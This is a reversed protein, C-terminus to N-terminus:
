NESNAAPLGAVFARIERLVDAENSRFVFHDATPLRVVHAKPMAHEFAAVQPETASEPYTAFIALVPTASIAPFRREGAQIAQIARVLPPAAIATAQRALNLPVTKGGMAFTGSLSQGDTSLKGNYHGSSVPLDFSFDPRSFTVNACPLAFAGQDVSDFACLEGGGASSKVTLQVRLSQIGPGLWIGDVVSPRVSPTLTQLDKVLMSPPDKPLRALSKTLMPLDTSLLQEAVSQDGAQLADLKARLEDVDVTAAQGPLLQGLPGASRAQLDGRAVDYFAYAYGADLYILGSVRQPYRTGISSLEEGAISHGALVVRSLKLSDLVEIVDDALRNADYGTLPASSAGFGRRTIALVHYSAALRPAFQDYVHADNGLGALLVLPRGTGGWDLVELKVNHDVTVFRVTHPSADKATSDAAGHCATLVSLALAAICTRQM